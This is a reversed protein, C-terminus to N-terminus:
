LNAAFFEATRRISLTWQPGFAHHEGQYVHYTVDKGAARLAAVTRDTWAPNVSEDATGQHIMIPVAIRDFYNVPSVNRWFEPNAEPSGHADIIRGALARREDSGRIWKNFNDVADSSVPAFLVIAKVLGPQVVAVNLGVGGGMSRGLLGIRNRDLTPLTSSKIALV